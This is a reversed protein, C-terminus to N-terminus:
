AKRSDHVSVLFVEQRVGVVVSQPLLLRFSVSYRLTAIRTFVRKFVIERLDKGGARAPLPLKLFELREREDHAPSLIIFYARLRLFIKQTIITLIKMLNRLQLSLGVFDDGIM